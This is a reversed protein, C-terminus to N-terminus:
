KKRSTVVHVVVQIVRVTTAVVAVGIIAFRDNGGCACRREGGSSSSLFAIQEESEEQVIMGCSCPNLPM